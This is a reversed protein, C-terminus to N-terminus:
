RCVGGVTNYSAGLLKIKVHCMPLFFIYMNLCMKRDYEKPRLFVLPFMAWEFDEM